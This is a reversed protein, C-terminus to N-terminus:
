SDACVYVRMRARAYGETSCKRERERERMREYSIGGRPLEEDVVMTWEGDGGPECRGRRKVTSNRFNHLMREIRANRTGNEKRM